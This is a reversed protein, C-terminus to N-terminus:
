YAAVDVGDGPLFVRSSRSLQGTQLSEAPSASRCKYPRDRPRRKRIRELVRSQPAHQVRGAPNARVEDDLVVHQLSKDNLRASRGIDAM